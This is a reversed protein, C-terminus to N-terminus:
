LHESVPSGFDVQVFAGAGPAMDRTISVHDELCHLHVILPLQKQLWVGEGKTQWGIEVDDSPRFANICEHGDQIDCSILPNAKGRLKRPVKESSAMCGAYNLGQAMNRQAGFECTSKYLVSKMQLVIVNHCFFVLVRQWQLILYPDTSTIADLSTTAKLMEIFRKGLNSGKPADAGGWM